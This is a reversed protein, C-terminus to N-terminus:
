NLLYFITSGGSNFFGKQGANTWAASAQAGNGMSITGSGSTFQASGFVAAGNNELDACMNTQAVNPTIAAPLGTMTFTTANSTGQMGTGVNLAVLNGIRYWTATSTVGTTFGTGTLTFTGRDPSMDVAVGATAGYGKIGGAGNVQFYNNTNTADTVNIAFDASTTGARIYLGQSQGSTLGAQILVTASNTPAQNATLCVGASPAACIIQGNSVITIGTTLAGGTVYQLLLYGSSASAALGAVGASLGTSGPSGFIIGAEVSAAQNNQFSAVTPNVQSTFQAAPVGGGAGNVTLTVTGSAGPNITVPGPLTVPAIFGITAYPSAINGTVVIGNVGVANRVDAGKLQNQIFNRFWTMDWSKPIALTSASTIGPKSILATM